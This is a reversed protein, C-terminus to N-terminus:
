RKNTNGIEKLQKIEKNTLLRYQGPRLDKLELPGLKTRHISIVPHKIKSFMKKIQRKRGETLTLKLRTKSKELSLIKIKCPYTKKDELVIGDELCEIEDKQITGKIEVEYVKEVEFKPHTLHYTLQGDNTLILLGTTDKDLRGVPYLRVKPFKDKINDLVTKNAFKDKVTSIVGKGKNLMIYIKNCKASTKGDAEIVDKDLDVMVYPVLVVKSNVKVKGKKILKVAERRSAFGLRSIALQLRIKKDKM